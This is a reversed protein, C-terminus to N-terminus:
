RLPGAGHEVRGPTPGVVANLGVNAYLQGEYEWAQQGNEFEVIKPARDALAAPMRGEFLDPPEILHDDVSIITPGAPTVGASRLRLVAVTVRADAYAPPTCVAGFRDSGGAGGDGTVQEVPGTVTM